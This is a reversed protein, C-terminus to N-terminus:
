PGPKSIKPTKMSDLWREIEGKLKKEYRQLTKQSCIPFSIPQLLLVIIKIFLLIKKTIIFFIQLISISLLNYVFFKKM